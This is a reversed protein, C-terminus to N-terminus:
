KVKGGPRVEKIMFIVLSVVAVILMLSITSFNWSFVNVFMMIGFSSLVIVRSFRKKKEGMKKIMNVAANVIIVGVGVKIGKFANAVIALEMFNDLCMSILFIVFFSPLVVGFTAIVAGSFGVQKYGIFTACNIAIPGPTSEAIITIDMMDDHSIWKKTEVCVNEIIGIMAYGGGFTFLGIKAFTFFLDFLINM